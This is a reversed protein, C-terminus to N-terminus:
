LIPDQWERAEESGGRLQERALAVMSGIPSMESEAHGFLSRDVARSSTGLPIVSASTWISHTEEAEEALVLDDLPPLDRAQISEYRRRISRLLVFIEALHREVYDVLLPALERYERIRPVSGGVFREAHRSVFDARVSYPLAAFLYRFVTRYVAVSGLKIVLLDDPDYFAVVHRRFHREPELFNTVRALSGGLRRLPQDPFTQLARIDSVQLERQVQEGNREDIEEKQIIEVPGLEGTSFFRVEEGIHRFLVVTMGESLIPYGTRGVHLRSSAGSLRDADVAIFAVPM